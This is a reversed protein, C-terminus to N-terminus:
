CYAREYILQKDAPVYPAIRSSLGNISVLDVKKGIANQLAEQMEFHEYFNVSFNRHDFKVLVDVDSDRSADVRAYPGFLYARLVPQNVLYDAVIKQIEEKTIM